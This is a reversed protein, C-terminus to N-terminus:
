AGCCKKYKKGSGCPCPDNRGVKVPKVVTRSGTSGSWPANDIFRNRRERYARESEELYAKWSPLEPDDVGNIVCNAYLPEVLDLMTEDYGEDIVQKVAPIGKVSLLNCLGDALVTRISEDEERQLLTLMAAESSPHKVTSLVASAFLRFKWESEPFAREIREIINPTGIRTLARAVEENLLDADLHLYDVLRPVMDEYQFMGALVCAYIDGYGDYNEPYTTDMWQRIYDTPADLRGALERAIYVGFSYNSEFIDKGNANESHDILKELLTPGDMDALSARQFAVKRAESSLKPFIHGYSRLLQSPAGIVLREGLDRFAPNTLISSAIEDMTSDTQAFDTSFALLTRRDDVSSPLRFGQLVWPMIEVDSSELEHFYHVAFKRVIPDEHSLFPKVESPRILDSGARMQIPKM